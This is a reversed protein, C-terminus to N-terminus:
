LVKDVIECTNDAAPVKCPNATAGATPFKGGQILQVWSDSFGADTLKKISRGANTWRDNTDGAVIVARGQSNANIYALIQDIGASRADVDGQDSSLPPHDTETWYADIM